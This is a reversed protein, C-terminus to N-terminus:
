MQPQLANGRHRINISLVLLLLTGCFLLVRAVPLYIGRGLEHKKYM